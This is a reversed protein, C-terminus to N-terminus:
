YNKKEIYITGTSDPKKVPKKDPGTTPEAPCATPTPPLIPDRITVRTGINVYDYLEEVDPIAMRVCGHSVNMGVTEPYNTGHIGVLSSNLEIWRTGLPNDPGPETLEAEKAWLSDPPIWTPDKVKNTIIFEGTPTPYEPSGCAILYNKVVKGDLVLALNFQALDIIISYSLKDITSPGVVGDPELGNKGQFKKVAELTKQDFTGKIDNEGLYNHLVLMRQLDKVDQGIAGLIQTRQGYNESSDVTFSWKKLDKLGVANEVEVEINHTGEVLKEPKYKIISSNVLEASVPKGNIKMDIKNIKSDESVTVSILPDVEKVINGDPPFPSSLKPATSDFFAKIQYSSKNGARDTSTIRFINKGEKLIFDKQFDGTDDTKIDFIKGDKDIKVKSIVETKGKIIFSKNTTYVEKKGPLSISIVPFSTDVSFTWRKKINWIAMKPHYVIEIEHNGESLYEAPLIIRDKSASIKKTVDHGDMTVKKIYSMSSSYQFSIESNSSTLLEGPEPKFHSPASIYISI